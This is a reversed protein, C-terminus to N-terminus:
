VAEQRKRGCISLCLVALCSHLWSVYTHTYHVDSTFQYLLYVNALTVCCHYSHICAVRSRTCFWGAKVQTEEKPPAADRLPLLEVEVCQGYVDVVAYRERPVKVALRHINRGNLVLYWTDSGSSPDQSCFMGVTEGEKCKSLNVYLNKVQYLVHSLAYIHVHLSLSQLTTLPLFVSHCAHVM